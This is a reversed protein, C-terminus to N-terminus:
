IKKPYAAFNLSRRTVGRISVKRTRIFVPNPISDIVNQIFEFQTKFAIEAEKAETVDSYVAIVCGNSVKYIYNDRWGSIRNDKYFTAPYHAPRGTVFVKKLIDLLGFEKISPFV